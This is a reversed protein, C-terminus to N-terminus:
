GHKKLGLSNMILRNKRAKKIPPVYLTSLNTLSIEQLINLKTYTIKPEFGPYQAAEYIIIEDTAKYYKKLYDVLLFIGTKKDNTSEQDVIGIADVQWLILHACVDFKRQHILFDTAEFSQCGLSGPDILLDAFLCDEASIGPLIKAYYGKQKAIKVADLGPKSFVTPHGYLVFCVHKNQYLHGLVYNTIQQYADIRFNTSTYIFDLSECNHNQEEIWMKLIPDNVLYLVVDCQQICAIAETTLHSFFKIGSGVVLLSCSSSEKAM